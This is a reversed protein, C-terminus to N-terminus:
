VAIGSQGCRQHRCRAAEPRLRAGPVAKVIPRLCSSHRGDSDENAM